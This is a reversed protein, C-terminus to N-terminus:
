FMESVDSNKFIGVPQQLVVAPKNVIEFGAQTIM